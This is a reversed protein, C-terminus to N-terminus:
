LKKSYTNWDFTAIPTTNTPCPVNDPSNWPDSVDIWNEAWKEPSNCKVCKSTQNYFFSTTFPMFEEERFNLTIPLKRLDIENYDRRSWCWFDLRGEYRIFFLVYRM